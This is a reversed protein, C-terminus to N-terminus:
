ALGRHGSTSFAVGQEAVTPDPRHTYYATMLRPINMLMSPKVPKEAWSSLGM